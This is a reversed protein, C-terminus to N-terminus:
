NPKSSFFLSRINGRSLFSSNPQNNSDKDLNKNDYEITKSNKCLKEDFSEQLGVAGSRQLEYNALQMKYEMLQDEMAFCKEKYYNKDALIKQLEALSVTDDTTCTSLADISKKCEFSEDMKEFSISNSRSENKIKLNERGSNRPSNQSSSGSKLTIKDFKHGFSAIFEDIIKNKENLENELKEIKVTSERVIKALKIESSSIPLPSKTKDFDWNEILTENSLQLSEITTQLQYITDDLKATEKNHTQKLNSIEQLSTDLKYGLEFSKRTELNFANVTKELTELCKVVQLTANEMIEQGYKEILPELTDGITAATSYVDDISIDFHDKEFHEIRSIDTGHLNIEISSNTPQRSSKPTSTNNQESIQIQSNNSEYSSYRKNTPTTM